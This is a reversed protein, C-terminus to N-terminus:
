IYCKRTFKDNMPKTITVSTNVNYATISTAAPIYVHPFMPMTTNCSELSNLNGANKNM